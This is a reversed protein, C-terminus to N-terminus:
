RHCRNSEDNMGKRLRAIPGLAKWPFTSSIINLWPISARPKQNDIVVWLIGGPDYAYQLFSKRARTANLDRPLPVKRRRQSVFSKIQHDGFRSQLPYIGKLKEARDLAKQRVGRDDPHAMVDIFFAENCAYLRPQALHQIPGDL